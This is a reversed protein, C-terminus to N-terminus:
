IAVKYIWNANFNGQWPLLVGDGVDEAAEVVLDIEVALHVFGEFGHGAGKELIPEDIEAGHAGLHRADLRGAEGGVDGREEGGGEVGLALRHPPIFSM